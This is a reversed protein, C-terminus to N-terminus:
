YGKASVERWSTEGDDGVIFIFGFDGTKQPGINRTSSVYNRTIENGGQTVTVAITVETITIDINGNYLSM